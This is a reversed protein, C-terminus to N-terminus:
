TNRFAVNGSLNKLFVRRLNKFKEGNFGLNRLLSRMQYKENRIYDNRNKKIFVRKHCKKVLEIIFQFYNKM